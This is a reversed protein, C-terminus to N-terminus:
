DPAGFPRIDCGSCAGNDVPQQRAFDPEECDYISINGYGNEFETLQSLIAACIDLDCTLSLRFWPHKQQKSM